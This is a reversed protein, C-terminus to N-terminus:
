SNRKDDNEIFRIKIYENSLMDMYTIYEFETCKGKLFKNGVDINPLEKLRHLRQYKNVHAIMALEGPMELKTGM